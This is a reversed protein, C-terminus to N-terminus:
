QITRHAIFCAGIAITDATRSVLMINATSNPTNKRFSRSLRARTADVISVNVPTIKSLVLLHPSQFVISQGSRYGRALGVTDVQNQEASGLQAQRIIDLSKPQSATKPNPVASITTATPECMMGTFSAIVSPVTSNAADVIRFVTSNPLVCLSSLLQFM